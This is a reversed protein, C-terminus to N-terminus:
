TEVPRCQRCHPGASFYIVHVFLTIREIISGALLFKIRKFASIITFVITNKTSSDPFLPLRKLTTGDNSPTFCKASCLLGFLKNYMEVVLLSLVM